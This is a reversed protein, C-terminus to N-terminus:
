IRFLWKQNTGDYDYVQVGVGILKALLSVASEDVQIEPPLAGNTFQLASAGPTTLLRLAFEGSLQKAYEATGQYM